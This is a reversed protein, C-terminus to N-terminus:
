VNLSTSVVRFADGRHYPHANRSSHWVVNHTSNSQAVHARGGVQEFWIFNVVGISFPSGWFAILPPHTGDAATAQTDSSFVARWTSPCQM